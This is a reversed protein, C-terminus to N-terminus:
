TLRLILFLVSSHPSGPSLDLNAPLLGFLREVRCTRPNSTIRASCLSRALTNRIARLGPKLTSLRDKTTALWQCLLRVLESYDATHALREGEVMTRTILGSAQQHKGDGLWLRALSAVTRLMFLNANQTKSVELSDLFACEAQRPMERETILQLEGKLRLLEAEYFREGSQVALSLAEEVASM